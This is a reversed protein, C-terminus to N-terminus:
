RSGPFPTLFRKRSTLWAASATAGDSLLNRVGKESVSQGIVADHFQTAAPYWPIAVPIRLLVIGQLLVLLWVIRGLRPSYLKFWSLVGWAIVASLSLAATARVIAALLDSFSTFM